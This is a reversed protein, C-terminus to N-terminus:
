AAVPPTPSDEPTATRPIVPGAGIEALPELWCARWYPHIARPCFRRGFSLEGSCVVGELIYCDNKLEIMRGSGEDIIRDVKRLVRATKGCFPLMERDFWFGEQRGDPGLTRAIEEESRIRVLQGPALEREDDGPTGPPGTHPRFLGRPILRAALAIEEVITRLLVRFFLGPSVNKAVLEHAYSAPTDRLRVPVSASLLATAQCRFIPQGADVSGSVKSIRSALDDFEVTWGIDSSGGLSDAPRLWAEKWYIRCGAQCGGHYAGDCRLDDLIVTEPIRRVSPGTITDCAREVRARVRYRKGYYALMEPMFPLGDLKGEGDLTALIEGPLRLEVVDGAKFRKPRM